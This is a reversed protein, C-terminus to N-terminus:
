LLVALRLLLLQCRVLDGKRMEERADVNSRFFEAPRWRPTGATTRHNVVPQCQTQKTFGGYTFIYAIKAHTARPNASAFRRSKRPNGCSSRCFAPSVRSVSPRNPDDKRGFRQACPKRLLAGRGSSRYALGSSFSANKTSRWLIMTLDGRRLMILWVKRDHHPEAKEPRMVQGQATSSPVQEGGM